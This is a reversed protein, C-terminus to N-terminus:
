GASVTRRRASEANSGRPIRRTSASGDQNGTSPTRRGVFFMRGEHVAGEVIPENGDFSQLEDFGAKRLRDKIEVEEYWRQILPIDTRVWRSGDLVFLTVDM